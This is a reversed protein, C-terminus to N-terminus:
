PRYFLQTWWPGGYPGGPGFQCGVGERTQNGDIMNAFHGPSGVWGNVVAQPTSQGVAVNEAWDSYGIQAASLRDGPSSNGVGTHSISGQGQQFLSHDYAVQAAPDDFALPPVGNQARVQNTLAHVQMAYDLEASSMTDGSGPAPPAGADPLGPVDGSSIGFLEEAAGGAGCAAFLLSAALAASIGLLRQVAASRHCVVM